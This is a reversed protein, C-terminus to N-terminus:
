DHLYIIVVKPDPIPNGDNDVPEDIRVVDPDPFYELLDDIEEQSEVPGEKEVGDVAMSSSTITGLATYRPYKELFELMEKYYPSGEHCGNPNIYNNEMLYRIGEASM